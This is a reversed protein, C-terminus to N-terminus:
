KESQAVDDRWRTESADFDFKEGTYEFGRPAKDGTRPGTREHTERIHDLAKAIKARDVLNVGEIERYAQTSITDAVIKHAYRKAEQKNM